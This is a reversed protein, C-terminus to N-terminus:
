IATAYGLAEHGDLRYRVGLTRLEDREDSFGSCEIRCCPSLMRKRGAVGPSAYEQTCHRVLRSRPLFIVVLELCSALLEIISMDALLKLLQM